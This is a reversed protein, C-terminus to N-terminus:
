RVIIPVCDVVSYLSFGSGRAGTRRLPLQHRERGRQGAPREDESADQEREDDPEEREAVQEVEFGRDPIGPMLSCRERRDDDRQPAGSEDRAREGDESADVGSEARERHDGEEDGDRAEHV